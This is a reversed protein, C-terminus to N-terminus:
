FVADRLTGPWSPAELGHQAFLCFMLRELGFGVCATTATQGGADDIRFRDGFFNGHLNFSGIAITRSGGDVRDEVKARVEQKADMAQQWFTRAGYVPAFFPDTATEIRCDLDWEEALDIVATMAESRRRAVFEETGLFVLERVNFEWLRDLGTINRSEYRFVRGRWTLALGREPLSKGELAEYCPFCAAPNLCFKPLAFTEGSTVTLEPKGVNARRFAELADYDEVVHSVFSVINPHMEFYGCRALLEAKIMAPYSQDIADFDRRYIEALRRDLANLANLPPGSLSVQGQGHEFLWGRGRFEDYVRSGSARGRHRNREFRVRQEIKRFNATMADLFRSLKGVIEDLSAGTADCEAIVSDGSDAVKLSVIDPSVYASQKEIDSALQGDVPVKLPLEVVVM